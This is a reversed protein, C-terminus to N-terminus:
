GRCEPLLDCSLCEKHLEKFAYICKQKYKCHWNSRYFSKKSGHNSRQTINIIFRENLESRSFITEASYNEHTQIAHEYAIYAASEIGDLYGQSELKMKVWTALRGNDDFLDNENM